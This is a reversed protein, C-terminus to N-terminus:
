RKGMKKCGGYLSTNDERSFVLWSLWGIVFLVGGIGRMMLFAGFTGFADFLFIAGFAGFLFGTGATGGAECHGV